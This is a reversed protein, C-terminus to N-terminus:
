GAVDARLAEITAILLAIDEPRSLRHEGDPVEILRVDQDFAKDVLAAGHAFPVDPDLRGHIIRVPCNPRWPADGLLHGRGDEILGRTIPYPEGYQSPRMWVGDSMLQARVDEPFEAWMLAETMDWAPAILVLGAVRRPDAIRRELLMALYGGMSSGVVIQPGQTNRDFVAVSEELWRSITGDRFAGGSQGHGSYDFRTLEAGSTEAWDALAAAKTSVMDSMFGQMWVIGPTSGPQHLLAIDRADDGSGVTIMQPKMSKM